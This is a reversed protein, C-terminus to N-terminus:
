LTALAARLPQRFHEVWPDDFNTTSILAGFLRDALGHRDFPHGSSALEIECLAFAVYWKGKFVLDHRNKNFITNILRTAAKIQRVLDVKQLGSEHAMEEICEELRLLETPSNPPVNIRSLGISYSAPRTLSLRRAILCLAIWEKWMTASKGCWPPSGDPFRNRVLEVDIAGATAFSSVLNGEVFLHNEISYCRTYVVHPSTRLKRFIDDADKDLYFMVLKPYGTESRDLLSDVDRLHEFCRTLIGKGGGSGTIRDAVVIEYSKGANRCVSGCIRSYVNPDLDRGEVFIFVQIRSMQILRKIANQTHGTRLNM